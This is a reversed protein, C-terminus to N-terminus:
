KEYWVKVFNADLAAIIDLEWKHLAVRTLRCWADIDSWSIQQPGHESYCRKSAINLYYNWLYVADQPLPPVKLDDPKRKPDYGWQRWGQM